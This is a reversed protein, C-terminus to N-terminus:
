GARALRETGFRYDDLADRLRARGRSLRSCVSGLPIQLTEAVRKYPVGEVDALLVVDRYAPPLANILGLIATEGLSEDVLREVVSPGAADNAIHRHLAVEDLSDLSVLSPEFTRRRHRGAWLNRMITLLWALLNTCPQYLARKRYGRELTDQVLDHATEADRTLRFARHHLAQLFPRVEDEFHWATVPNPAGSVATSTAGPRRDGITGITGITITAM